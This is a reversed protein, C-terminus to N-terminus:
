QTGGSCEFNVAQSDVRGLAVNKSSVSCTAPAYGSISVTYDGAVLGAFSYRGGADTMATRDRGGSLTVTVGSLGTNGVSVRGFIDSARVVVGTFSVTVTHGADVTVTRSSSAFEYVREDYGSIAVIYTGRAVREFRYRGDSDTTDRAVETADDHRTLTVIVGPLGVGEIITIGEIVGTQAPPPPPPTDTSDTEVRILYHQDEAMGTNECWRDAVYSDADATVQGDLVCQGSNPDHFSLVMTSSPDYDGVVPTRWPDRPLTSDGRVIWRGWVFGRDQKIALTYTISDLTTRTARSTALVPRTEAYVGAVDPYVDDLSATPPADCATLLAALLLLRKM